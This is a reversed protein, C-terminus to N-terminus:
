FSAFYYNMARLINLFHPDIDDMDFHRDLIKGLSRRQTRCVQLSDVWALVAGKRGHDAM